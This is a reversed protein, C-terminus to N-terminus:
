ILIKYSSVPYYATIEFQLSFENKCCHWRHVTNSVASFHFHFHFFVTSTEVTEVLTPTLETFIAYSNFGQM